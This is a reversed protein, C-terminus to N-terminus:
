LGLVKVCQQCFIPVACPWAWHSMGTIGASPPQPLRIVQPGSNSVQRALITFDEDRSFICFILLAHPAHRYNWSSLLNLCSFRKFGFPLPQLSGLDYWQVGAQVVSHSQM